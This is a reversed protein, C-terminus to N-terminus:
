WFLRFRMPKSGKWPEIKQQSELIPFRVNKWVNLNSIDVHINMADIVRLWNENKDSADRDDFLHVLVDNCMAMSWSFISYRWFVVDNVTEIVERVLIM